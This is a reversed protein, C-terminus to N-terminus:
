EALLVIALLISYVPEMNVALTTAFASRHRQAVLALAFPPLTCGPALVVLLLTDDHSPLELMGEMPPLFPSGRGSGRIRIM